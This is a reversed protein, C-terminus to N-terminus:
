NTTDISLFHGPFVSENIKFKIIYLSFIVGISKTRKPSLSHRRVHTLQFQSKLKTVSNYIHRIETILEDFIQELSEGIWQLAHYTKAIEQRL